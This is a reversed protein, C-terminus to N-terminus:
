KFVRIFEQATSLEKIIEDMDQDAVAMLEGFWTWQADTEGLEVMDLIDENIYEYFDDQYRKKEANVRADSEEEETELQLEQM